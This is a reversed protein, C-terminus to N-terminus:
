NMNIRGIYDQDEVSLTIVKADTRPGDFQLPGPNRYIDDMLFSTANKRLLEYAKGRLDVTTPHIALKGISTDRLNPSWRKVIMMAEKQELKRDLEKLEKDLKEQISSHEVEKEDDEM